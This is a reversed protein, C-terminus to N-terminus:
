VTSFLLLIKAEGQSSGLNELAHLKAGEEALETVGCWWLGPTWPLRLRDKSYMRTYLLPDMAGCHDYTWAAFLSEM